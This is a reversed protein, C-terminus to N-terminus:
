WFEITWDVKDLNITRNFQSRVLESKYRNRVINQNFNLQCFPIVSHILSWERPNESENGKSSM